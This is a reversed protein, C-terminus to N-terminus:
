LYSKFLDRCPHQQSSQCILLIIGVKDHRLNWESPVNGPAILSISEKVGLLAEKLLIETNGMKRGCSLGLIRM